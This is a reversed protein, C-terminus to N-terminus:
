IKLVSLIANILCQQLGKKVKPLSSKWKANNLSKYVVSKRQWANLQFQSAPLFQLISLTSTVLFCKHLSKKPVSLKDCVYQEVFPPINAFNGVVGSIKDAEVGAAVHEFREINRKMESYWTALKLGFTIPEAHVGHTRGMM